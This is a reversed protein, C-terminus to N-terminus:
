MGAAVFGLVLFSLIGNLQFFALGAAFLGVCVILPGSAYLPMVRWLMYAAGVGGTMYVFQKFTLPGFIKDEVEIFQPVQFQM